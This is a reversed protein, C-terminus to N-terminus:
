EIKLDIFELIEDDIYEHVYSTNFERDIFESYKESQVYFRSSSYPLENPNKLSPYKQLIEEPMDGIKPFNEINSHVSYSTYSCDELSAKSSWSSTKRVYDMDTALDFSNIQEKILSVNPKPPIIIDTKPGIRSFNYLYTGFNIYFFTKYYKFRDLYGLPIQGNGVDMNSLELIFYGTDSRLSQENEFGVVTISYLDNTPLIPLYGYNDFFDFEEYNLTINTGIEPNEFFNYKLQLNEDLIAMFYSTDEFNNIGNRQITTTGNSYSQFGGNGFEPFRVTSLNGPGNAPNGLNGNIVSNQGPIGNLTLSFEGLSNPPEGNSLRYNHRAYTWNSGKKIEPYVTAINYYGECSVTAEIGISRSNNYFLTVNFKEPSETELTEFILTNGAEFERYDLINGISDHIIIWDERYSTDITEDVNFTFYEELEPEKPEEPKPEPMSQEDGDPKPEQTEDKTCSILAICFFFLLIPRSIKM